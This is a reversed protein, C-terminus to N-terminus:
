VRWLTRFLTSIFHIAPHLLVKSQLMSANWTAVYDLGEKVSHDRSYNLNIKTGMLAIPSKSGIDKAM